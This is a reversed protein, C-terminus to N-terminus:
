RKPVSLYKTIESAGKITAITSARAERVYLELVQVKVPSKTTVIVTHNVGHTVTDKANAGDAITVRIKIVFAANRKTDAGFVADRQLSLFVRGQSDPKM